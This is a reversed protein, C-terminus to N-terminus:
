IYRYCLYPIYLQKRAGKRCSNAWSSSFRFTVFPSYLYLLTMVM